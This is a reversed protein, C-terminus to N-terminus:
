RQRLEPDALRDRGLPRYSGTLERLSPLLYSIPTRWEVYGHARVTLGERIPFVTSGKSLTWRYGAGSARDPKLSIEARMVPGGKVLAEALQPNGLTTAVDERSAPLPSVREVQGVLGGFRSREQWDPVVEVALGRPLRRADAPSFYAVAQLPDGSAAGLTGLRQGPKVTQGTVVQLDLITGDREALLQSDYALRSQTVKISRRLEDIRYDRRLRETEIELKVTEFTDIAQKERIRLEAIAVNLQTARDETAVVDQALPAVVDTRALYRFDAVKQSYTARLSAYQRRDRELKALATDRVLRASALRLGDRRNLESNLRIREGLDQQQRNLDQRLTPLYLSILPQGRRVRDGVKVALALIQGEARADIVAAGGPVILVGRGVVETPVLGFCSWLVTLGAMTALALGM